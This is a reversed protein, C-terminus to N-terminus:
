LMLRPVDSRSIALRMALPMRWEVPPKRKTLAIPTISSARRMACTEILM